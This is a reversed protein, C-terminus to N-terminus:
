KEEQKEIKMALIDKLKFLAMHHMAKYETVNSVKAAGSTVDFSVEILKTVFNPYKVLSVATYPYEVSEKVTRGTEKKLLKNEQLAVTLLSVLEKKTMSEYNM